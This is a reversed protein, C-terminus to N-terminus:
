LRSVFPLCRPSVSTNTNRTYVYSAVVGALSISLLLNVKHGRVYKEMVFAKRGCYAWGRGRSTSALMITSEDTDVIIHHPVTKIGIPPGREFFLEISCATCCAFLSHTHLDSRWNHCCLLRGVRAPEAARAPPQAGKTDSGATPAAKRGLQRHNRSWRRSMADLVGGCGQSVFGCVCRRLVIGLSLIQALTVHVFSALLRCGGCGTCTLCPMCKCTYLILLIDDQQTLLKKPGGTHPKRLSRGTASLLARWRRLSRM